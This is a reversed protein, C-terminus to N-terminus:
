IDTAVHGNRSRAAHLKGALEGIAQTLLSEINMHIDENTVDFVLEGAEYQALLQELGHRIQQADEKALIGAEGLMTVHAISRQIDYKALKQYFRISAGFEEVWREVEAEFRGGWLKHNSTM